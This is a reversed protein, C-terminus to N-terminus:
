FSMATAPISEFEILDLEELRIAMAETSVNFVEAISKFPTAYLYEASAIFRSLDRLSRHKVRFSRLTDGTLAFISDENLVFKDMSFQEQFAKVVQKKPMLFYTAFKDAQIEIAARVIGSTGDLARDRHLVNQKHLLAHGLEHALTFNQIHPPFNKSIGVAKNDNDIIGAIEVIEGSLDYEGLTDRKLVKYDLLKEFAINPRLIERPTEPRKKKWITNRYKWMLNQVKIAIDEIAANSLNSNSFRTAQLLKIEKQFSQNVELENELSSLNKNAVSLLREYQFKLDKTSIEIEEVWAEDDISLLNLDIISLCGPIVAIVGNLAVGSDGRASRFANNFLFTAYDALEICLKAIELPTETALKLADKAQQKLAVQRKFRKENDRAVRLQIAVDFQESDQQFLVELRPYIRNNIDNSMEILQSLVSQYDSKRKEDTTLEIVTLILQASLMGQLVAASGSGPKHSGAGFKKLLTDASLDLLKGNM